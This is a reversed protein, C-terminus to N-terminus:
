LLSTCRKSTSVLPLSKAMSTLSALYCFNASWLTVACVAIKASGDAIPVSAHQQPTFSDVLHVMLLLLSLTRAVAETIVETTAVPM